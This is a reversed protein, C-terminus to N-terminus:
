VFWIGLLVVRSLLFCRVQFRELVPMSRKQKRSMWHVLGTVDFRSYRRGPRYVSTKRKAIIGELGRENALQYFKQWRVTMIHHDM